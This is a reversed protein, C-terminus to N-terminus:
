ATCCLLAHAECCARATGCMFVEQAVLRTLVARFSVGQRVSAPVDLVYVSQESRGLVGVDPWCVSGAAARQAVAAVDVGCAEAINITEHVTLVPLHAAGGGDGFAESAEQQLLARPQGTSRARGKGLPHFAHTGLASTSALEGVVLPSALAAHSHPPTRLAAVLLPLLLM